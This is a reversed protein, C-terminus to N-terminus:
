DRAHDNRVESITRAADGRTRALYIFLFAGLAALAVFSMLGALMWGILALAFFILAGTAMLGIFGFVIAYGIPHAPGMSERRDGVPFRRAFWPRDRERPIMSM